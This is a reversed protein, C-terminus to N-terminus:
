GAEAAHAFRAATAQAIKAVHALPMTQIKKTIEEVPDPEATKGNLYDWLEQLTLGGSAAIRKLNEVDPAKICREWDQVATASVGIQKAYIRQSQKGRTSKLFSSLKKQANTQM